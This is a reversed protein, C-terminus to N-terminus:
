IPIINTIFKDEKLSFKCSCIRFGCIFPHISKLSRFHNTAEKILTEKSWRGDGIFLSDSGVMQRPINDADKIFGITYM